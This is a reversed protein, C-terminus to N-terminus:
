DESARIQARIEGGPIDGPGTNPPDVGDNTHVNVYANGARMADILASLPQGALPGILSAATLTGTALIGNSRGGGAAAPGFLFAVIMGNEGKPALHIHSMTVNDINAVIVRYDIRSGDDSLDFIATGHAKSTNAPVENQGSLPAAVFSAAFSTGALTLLALALAAFLPKKM